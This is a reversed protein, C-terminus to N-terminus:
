FTAQQIPIARLISTLYVHAPMNQKKTGIIDNAAREDKLETALRITEYPDEATM